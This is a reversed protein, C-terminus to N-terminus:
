YRCSTHGMTLVSRIACGVLQYGQHVGAPRGVEEHLEEQDRSPDRSRRQSNTGCYQLSCPQKSCRLVPLSSASASEDIGYVFLSGTSSGVYLRDGLTCHTQHPTQTERTCEGKVTICEPREKVGNIVTIPAVFPPMQRQANLVNPQPGHVANASRRGKRM